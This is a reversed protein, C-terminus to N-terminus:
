APKFSAALTAWLASTGTTWDITRAGAGVGLEFIAGYRLFNSGDQEEDLQTGDNNTIANNTANDDGFSGIILSNAAVVTLTDAPATSTGTGGAGVADFPSAHQGSFEDISWSWLTNADGHTGTLTNAGGGPSVGYAIFARLNAGAADEMLVTYTTGVTDTFGLTDLTGTTYISGAAILLRSAGVNAPFALISTATLGAERKLARQSGSGVEIIGSPPIGPVFIGPSNPRPIFVHYDM